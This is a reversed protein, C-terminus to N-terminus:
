RANCFELIKPSIMDPDLTIADSNERWAACAAIAMRAEGLAAYGELTARALTAKQTRTLDGMGLLRSARVLVSVYQGQELESALTPLEAAATRQSVLAARQGVDCNGALLAAARGEETLQLDVLPVLIVEHSSVESGERQNFANLEWAWKPDERHRVWVDTLLTSQTAIYPIVPFVEYAQGPSPPIWALAQNAKALSQDRKADGLWRQALLSWTDGESVRRVESSPVEIRMGAVIKIGGKEDLHNADVLVNERRASGYMRTAVTALTEGPQIVYPFAGVSLSYLAVATAIAPGVVGCRTSM